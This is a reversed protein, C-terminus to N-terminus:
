KLFDGKEVMMLLLSSALKTRIEKGTPLNGEENRASAKAVLQSFEAETLRMDLPRSVLNDELDAFKEFVRSKDKETMPSVVYSVHTIDQNVNTGLSTLANIVQSGANTKVDNTIMNMNLEGLDTVEGAKVEFNQAWLGILPMNGTVNYGGVKGSKIKYTGPKLSHIRPSEAFTFSSFAGDEVNELTVTAYSLGTSKFSGVAGGSEQTEINSSIGAYDIGPGTACATLASAFIAVAFYKLHKM